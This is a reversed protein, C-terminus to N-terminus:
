ELYLARLRSTLLEEDARSYPAADVGRHVAEGELELGDTPVELLDLITPTVDLLHLASFRGAQPVSPGRMAFFGAPAHAATDLASPSPPATVRDHGILDSTTYSGGEIELFLDPTGSRRPGSYVDDRRLVRIRLPEGDPATVHGLDEEIREAVAGLAEPRLCGQPERGAVNLYIQGGYGRAWARTRGWDVRAAGLAAPEAPREELALYGAEALWDNVHFKGRLSQVGHDSAVIVTTEEGVLELVEGLRRDCAVYQGLVPDPVAASPDHLPHDPDQDRMFYHAVRDTGMLVAFALDWPRTRLVHALIDFRQEDMRRIRELVGARDGARMEEEAAVDLILPSSTASLLERQAEPPHAITAELSPAMFCSLCLGGPIAVPPYTVPVGLMLVRRGYRPLITYLTPVKVMGSHVLSWRTYATGQRCTFDTIGFWGPNHGSIMSTWAVPTVPPVVSQLEGFIGDDMVAGLNPLHERWRAVLDPSLGDLGVVLVRTM